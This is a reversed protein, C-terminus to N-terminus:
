CSRPIAHSEQTMMVCCLKLAKNVDSQGSGSLLAEQAGQVQAPCKMPMLISTPAGQSGRSGALVIETGVDSTRAAKESVPSLAVQTKCLSQYSLFPLLTPPHITVALSILHLDPTCHSCNQKTKNKKAIGTFIFYSVPIIEM